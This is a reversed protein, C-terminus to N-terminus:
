AKAITAETIRWSGDDRVACLGLIGEAEPRDKSATNNPSPGVIAHIVGPIVSPDAVAQATMNGSHTSIKVYAGDSLANAALTSPNIHVRGGLSRLHSEQFLKSLVPAVSATMTANRWGFPILKLTGTTDLAPASAKDYRDPTMLGLLTLRPNAQKDQMNDVWWGGESLGKWLEEESAMAMVPTQSSGTPTALTGRKSLWIDHARQRLCSEVTEAGVSPLGSAGALKALLTAPDVTTDPQKLLPLSLAFSSRRAGPPTSIEELSEFAAPSPVLYDALASRSSLYPSLMVVTGGDATLKRKLLSLPYTHGSEAGDILLLRVSHDPVQALGVAPSTTAGPSPIPPHLSIGGTRGINGLLVNLGAIVTETASDLPGGAPDYGSMVVSPNSALAHATESIVSSPIGCVAAVDEPEFKSVLTKYTHFDPSTKEIKAPFLNQRVIVGGIALALAAETGPMIPLWTDAQLATRSQVGEVQILKLGNQNRNQLLQVTRGPTSWGDVLPAGFSLIVRTNELDYGLTGETTNCLARLTTLTPDESGPAVAYIGGPFNSVFKRYLDSLVRGPRQDLVAITGRSSSSRIDKLMPALNSAIEDLTSPVLPSDAGKGTFAFPRRLRLPHYALHHGAIGMPCLIGNSLSHGAVGVLSVPHGNVRRAKVACGGPCLTCGTFTFTEPGRPLRPILSWNQTWIASDDLLKWPIPTFLAGLISGGAFTLLERRTINMPRKERESIAILVATTETANQM